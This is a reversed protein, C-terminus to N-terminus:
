APGSQLKIFASPTRKGVTSVSLNGIKKIRSRSM